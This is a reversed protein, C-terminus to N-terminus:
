RVWSSFSRPLRSGPLHASRTTRSRGLRSRRSPSGSSRKVMRSRITAVRTSPSTTWPARGQGGGSRGARRRFGAGPAEPRPGRRGGRADPATERRQRPQKRGPSKVGGAPQLLVALVPEARAVFGVLGSPPRLHACRRVFRKKPGRRGTRRDAGPGSSVLGFERPESEVSLPPLPASEPRAPPDGALWGIRNRAAGPGCPELRIVSLVGPTEVYGAPDSGSGAGPCDTAGGLTADGEVACRRRGASATERGRGVSGAGEVRCEGSNRLRPARARSATGARGVGCRGPSM